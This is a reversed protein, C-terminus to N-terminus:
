QGGNFLVERTVANETKLNRESLVKGDMNKAIIKFDEEKGEIFVYWVYFDHDGKIITATYEKETNLNISIINDIEDNNIMGFIMPFPSKGFETGETSPLYQASWSEGFEMVPDEKVNYIPSHGGGFVWKWGAYTKKVFEAQIIPRDKNTSSYKVHFVVVGRDMELVHIVRDVSM